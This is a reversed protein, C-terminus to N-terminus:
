IQDNRDKDLKYAVIKNNIGNRNIRKLDDITM